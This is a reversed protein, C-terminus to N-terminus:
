LDLESAMFNFVGQSGKLQNEYCGGACGQAGPFASLPLHAFMERRTTHSDPSTRAVILSNEIAAITVEEWFWSKLGKGTQFSCSSIEMARFDLVTLLCSFSGTPLHAIQTRVTTFTLDSRAYM